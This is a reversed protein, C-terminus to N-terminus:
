RTKSSSATKRSAVVIATLENVEALLRTVLAQKIINAEILLELWYGSEDIEEEVIGLKAVFDAKSRASCVARYNAGVSTASRLVQKGIVGATVSKPLSEVMRIIALGFQKTRNKLYDPTM